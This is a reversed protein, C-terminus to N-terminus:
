DMLDTLWNAEQILADLERHDKALQDARKQIDPVVVTSVFKVESKSYRSQKISSSEALDTYASHKARLIDRFALADALTEGKRLENSTNTRNIKQILHTLETATREYEELLVVPDEAPKEGEQTKANRLLREKLQDFRKQLDARLLLAEALKM